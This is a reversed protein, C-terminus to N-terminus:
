PAKAQAIASDRAPRETGWKTYTAAEEEDFDLVYSAVFRYSQM